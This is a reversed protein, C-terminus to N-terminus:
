VFQNQTEIKQILVADQRNMTKIGLAIIRISSEPLNVIEIVLSREPCGKWAGGCRFMTYDVHLDLLFQEVLETNKEETLIRHM